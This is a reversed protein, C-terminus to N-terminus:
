LLGLATDPRCHACAEVGDALLRVADDRSVAQVHKGRMHCGGIHVAVPSRRADIGRSVTWDPPPPRRAERNRAAEEDAAAQRERAAIATDLERVVMAHWTRLTRLRPLDPPLDFM